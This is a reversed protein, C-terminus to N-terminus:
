FGVRVFAASFPRAYWDAFIGAKVAVAHAQYMSVVNDTGATGDSSDGSPAANIQITANGSVDLVVRDDISHLIMMPSVLAIANTPPSGSQGLASSIEVPLGLLRGGNAGIEGFYRVGETSRLTSLYSATKQTMCFRGDRHASPVANTLALLDAEVQAATSGSTTVEVQGDLVSGTEDPSLLARDVAEAVAALIDATLALQVGPDGTLMLERSQATIAGFLRRRLTRATWAGNSFPISAGEVVEAGTAGFESVFVAEDFPVRAMGLRGLLALDRFQNQFASAVGGGVAGGAFDGTGSAAMQISGDITARDLMHGQGALWARALELSGQGHLMAQAYRAVTFRNHETKM